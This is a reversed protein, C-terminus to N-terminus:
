IWCSLVVRVPAEVSLTPWEGFTDPGDRTARVFVTHTGPATKFEASDGAALFKVGAVQQDILFDLSIAGRCSQGDLVFRIRAASAQSAPQQPSTILECSALAFLFPLLLLKRVPVDVVSLLRGGQNARYLATATGSKSAPSSRMRSAAAIAFTSRVARDVVSTSDSGPTRPEESRTGM